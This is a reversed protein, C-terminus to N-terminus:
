YYTIYNTSYKLIVYFIIYFITIFTAYNLTIGLQHTKFYTYIILILWIITSSMMLFMKQSNSLVLPELNEYIKKYSTYM